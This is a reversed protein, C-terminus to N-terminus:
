LCSCKMLSFTHCRITDDIGRNSFSRLLHFLRVIDISLLSDEWSNRNELMIDDM